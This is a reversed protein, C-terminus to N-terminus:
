VGPPVGALLDRPFYPRGPVGVAAQVPLRNKEAGKLGSYAVLNIM